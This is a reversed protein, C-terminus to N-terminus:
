MKLQDNSDIVNVSYNQPTALNYRKNNQEKM